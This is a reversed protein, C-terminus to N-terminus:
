VKVLTLSVTVNKVVSAAEVNFRLWDGANIAWGAGGNLSSDSNKGAVGTLRPKETNPVIMSHSSNPPYNDFSSKWIDIIIIGTEDAVLQWGTVVCSFPVQLSGKVGLTIVSSGGDIVFEVAAPGGADEGIGLLEKQAELDAAALLDRGAESIPIAVPVGDDLAGLLSNAAILQIATALAILEPMKEAVYAVVEFAEGLGEDVVGTAEHHHNQYPNERYREDRAFPSRMGVM